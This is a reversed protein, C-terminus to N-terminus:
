FEKNRLGFKNVFFKHDEYFGRSVVRINMKLFVDNM